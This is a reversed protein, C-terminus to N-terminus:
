RLAVLRTEALRRLDEPHSVFIRANADACATVIFRGDPSFNGDMVDAQHGRLIALLGYRDADWLRATKDDSTTLITRGDPSFRVHNINALHADLQMKLQNRELSWIRVTGEVGASALQRSDPSFNFDNVGSPHGSFVSLQILTRLDWLLIKGDEQATAAFNGDPSVALVAVGESAFGKLEGLRLGSKTDWVLVSGDLGLSLIRSGDPVFLAKRVAATHEAFNYILSGTNADWLNSTMDDSATLVYKGDPSFVANGVNATHGSLTVLLSGDVASWIKATGDSSATVIRSGDSSFIASHVTSSHNLTFVMQGSDANWIRATKDFSATAIRKGDPSFNATYIVNRHGHLRAYEDNANVQWLRAVNEESASVVFAGDPSFAAGTLSYQHGRFVSLETGQITNWIRLTSDESVTLILKEGPLFAAGLVAGTHGRLTLLEETFDANWLRAIRDQGATLVRTGDESFVASFIAGFFKKLSAVSKGTQTNWVTVRGDDTGTIVRRGDKSFHASYVATDSAPLISIPTWSKTGWVIAKGDYGATLVMADDESFEAYIVSDRHGALKKILNGNSAQWLRATGDDSVTAIKSGDFSFTAYNITDTHGQLLFLEKGTNADWVRATQDKSATVLRAGDPSYAVSKVSDHHGTLVLITKSTNAAWIRVTMDDSATAIQTSDPSYAVHNINDAHGRLFAKQNLAILSQRLTDQTEFTSETKDAELALYLAKVPDSNILDKAQSAKMSANATREIQRQAAESNQQASEATAKAESALREQKGTRVSEAEATGRAADALFASRIAQRSSNIAWGSAVLAMVLLLSIAVVLARLRKAAIRQASLEAERLRVTERVLDIERQRAAEKLQAEAEVAVHSAQVFKGIQKDLNPSAEVLREADELVRGRLLLSADQNSQEWKIAAERLRRQERMGNRAENLWVMLRSWNRVLAEHAVEIQTVGQEGTEDLLAPATQKVLGEDILRDLVWAVRDRAPGDVFVQERPIRSSTFETGEEPQVMQLFIHKLANQDEVMLGSYLAEAGRELAQRPNGVATYIDATIRNRRRQKWLKLLTFQLLPLGAREGLITTILDDVIGNDFKLGVLAAPKEIAERLENIDLVGVDVRAAQFRTYFDPLRAVNDVYDLRMTLVVVCPPAAETLDLLQQTFARQASEDKCRTFLEEFQDVVIVRPLHFDQGLLATHLNAQPEAGPVLTILQWLPEGSEQTTARLRPLMGALVLSSKGSGSAGVVALLRTGNQIRQVLMETLRERGFFFASNEERFAALGAYPCPEDPLEPSQSEDFEALTTEDLARATRILRTTWYDILTQAEQRERPGDLLVGTAVGRQVFQTVDDLFEISIDNPQARQRKLLDAHVDKIEDLPRSLNFPQATQPMATDSLNM